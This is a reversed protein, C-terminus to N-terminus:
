KLIRIINIYKFTVSESPIESAEVIFKNEGTAFNGLIGLQQAEYSPMADGTDNATIGEITIEAMYPYDTRETEDFDTCTNEVWASTPITLLTPDTYMLSQMNGKKALSSEMDDVIKQMSRGDNTFIQSITTKFSLKNGDKDVPWVYKM